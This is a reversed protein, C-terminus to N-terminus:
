NAGELGLGGHQSQGIVVYFLLDPEQQVLELKSYM